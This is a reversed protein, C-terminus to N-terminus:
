QSIPNWDRCYQYQYQYQDQHYTIICGPEGQGQHGAQCCASCGKLTDVQRRSQQQMCATQQPSQQVSGTLSCGATVAATHHAWPGSPRVAPTATYGCPDLTRRCSCCVRPVGGPPSFGDM